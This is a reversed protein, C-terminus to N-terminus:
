TSAASGWRQETVRQLSCRKQSGVEAMAIANVYKSHLCSTKGFVSSVICAAFTVWAQLLGLVPKSMCSVSACCTHGGINLLCVAEGWVWDSTSIDLIIGPHPSWLLKCNCTLASAALSLHGFASLPPQPTFCESGPRPSGSQLCQILFYVLVFSPSRYFVKADCLCSARVLWIELDPNEAWGLHQIHFCVLPFFTLPCSAKGNKGKYDQSKVNYIGKSDEVAFYSFSLVWMGAMNDLDPRVAAAAIAQDYREQQFPLGFLINDRVSANYIFASQPVYAVQM